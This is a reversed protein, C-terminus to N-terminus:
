ISVLKRKIEEALKELYRLRITNQAAQDLKNQEFNEKIDDVCGMREETNKILLNRIEDANDADELEERTEMSEMLLAPSAKVSSRGDKNVVLGELSLMYEARKLPSKLTEYAANIDMTQQMSITKEKESKRMFLDPHLKRQLAFYAAELNKIGIEFDRAMGLKTFYDVSSPPQVFGCSACFIDAEKVSENCNYCKLQNQM